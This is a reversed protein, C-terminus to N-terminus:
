IYLFGPRRLDIYAPPARHSIQDARRLVDVGPRPQYDVTEDIVLASLSTLGVWLMDYLVVIIRFPTTPPRGAFLNPSRYSRFLGAEM